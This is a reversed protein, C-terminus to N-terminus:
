PNCHNVTDQNFIGWLFMIHNLTSIKPYINKIWWCSHCSNSWHPEHKMEVNCHRWLPHSPMEFWWSWWQKNLRKNLRLDFLVDFRWMEPRQSPFEGTVPSNDACIALLVSCTEMPHCWWLLHNKLLQKRQLKFDMWQDCSGKNHM